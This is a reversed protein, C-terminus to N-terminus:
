LTYSEFHDWSTSAMIVTNGENQWHFYLYLSNIQRHKCMKIYKVIRAKYIHLCENQLGIINSVYHVKNMYNEHIKKLEVLLRKTEFLQVCSRLNRFHFSSSPLNVTVAIITIDQCPLNGDPVPSPRSFSCHRTSSAVFDPAPNRPKWGVEAVQSSKSETHLTRKIKLIPHYYSRNSSSLQMFEISQCSITDAM